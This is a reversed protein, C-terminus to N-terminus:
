QLKKKHAKADDIEPSSPDADKWLELFRAYQKRAKDKMNKEEYLKGLSFYDRPHILVITKEPDPSILREYEAIARDLDSM